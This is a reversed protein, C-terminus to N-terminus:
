RDILSAAKSLSVNLTDPGSGLTKLSALYFRKIRKQTSTFTIKASQKEEYRKLWAKIGQDSNKNQEKNALVYSGGLSLGKFLLLNM